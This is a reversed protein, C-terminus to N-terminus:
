RARQEITTMHQAGKPFQPLGEHTWIGHYSRYLPMSETVNRSM